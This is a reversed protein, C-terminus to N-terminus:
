IDIFSYHHGAWCNDNLLLDEFREKSVKTGLKAFFYLGEICDVTFPDPRDNLDWHIALDQHSAHFFFESTEFTDVPKLSNNIGLWHPFTDHFVWLLFIFLHSLPQLCGTDTPHVACLLKLLNFLILLCLLLLSSTRRNWWSVSFFLIM